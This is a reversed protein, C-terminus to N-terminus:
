PVCLSKSLLLYFPSQEAGAPFLISRCTNGCVGTGQHLSNSTEAGWMKSSGPLWPLSLISVARLLCAKLLVCHCSCARSGPTNEAARGAERGRITPSNARCPTTDVKDSTMTPETPGKICDSRPHGCLCLWREEKKNQVSAQQLPLWPWVGCPLELILVCVPRPVRHQQADREGRATM